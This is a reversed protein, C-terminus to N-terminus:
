YGEEEEEEEEEEQEEEEEPEELVSPDAGKEILYDVLDQRNRRYATLLFSNNRATVDAGHEVLFKIDNLTKEANIFINLAEDDHLNVNAGNKVLFLVVDYKKNELAWSLADDNKAHVNAGKQVLYKVIDLNGNESAVRLPADDHYHIDLNDTEFLLQVINLKNYICARILIKYKDNTTIGKDLLYDVIDFHYKIMALIIADTVVPAFSPKYMKKIKDLDGKDVATFFRQVNQDTLFLEINKFGKEKAKQIGQTIDSLKIKNFDTREWVGVLDGRQVADHFPFTAM